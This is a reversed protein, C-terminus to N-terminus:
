DNSSKSTDIIAKYIFYKSQTKNEFITYNIFSICEPTLQQEITDYYNYQFARSAGRVLEVLAETYDGADTGNKVFGVGM